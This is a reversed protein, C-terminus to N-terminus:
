MGEEVNNNVQKGTFIDHRTTKNIKTVLLTQRVFNEDLHNMRAMGCLFFGWRKALKLTEPSFDTHGRHCIECVLVQKM